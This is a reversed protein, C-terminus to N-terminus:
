QQWLMQCHQCATRQTRTLGASLPSMTELMTAHLSTMPLTKLDCPRQERVVALYKLLTLLRDEANPQDSKLSNTSTYVVVGVVLESRM